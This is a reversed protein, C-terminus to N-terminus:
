PKKYADIILSTYTTKEDSYTIGDVKGKKGFKRSRHIVGHAGDWDCSHFQGERDFYELVKVDFGESEFLRTISNHNYLVKHDQAGPGSGNVKVADIYKPDPNFGDPVAIRLYGGPKLYCYCNRLAIAAEEPTLHEWVHEALIAEISCKKFCEEWHKRNILNLYEIDTPIWGEDHIGWAGVVIRISPTSSVARKLRYTGHVAKYYHYIKKGLDYLPPVRKLFRKMERM